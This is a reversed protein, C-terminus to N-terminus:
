FRKHIYDQIDKQKTIKAPDLQKSNKALPPASASSSSAESLLGRIDPSDAGERILAEADIKANAKRGMMLFVGGRAYLGFQHVEPKSQGALVNFYGLATKFDKKDFAAQGAAITDKISKGDTVVKACISSAIASNLSDKVMPRKDGNRIAAEFDAAAKQYDGSDSYASARLTRYECNRPNANILKTFESIALDNQGKNLAEVGKSVAVMEQDVSMPQALLPSEFILSSVSIACAAGSLLLLKRM